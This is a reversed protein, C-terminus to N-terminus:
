SFCMTKKTAIQQAAEYFRLDYQNVSELYAKIKESMPETPKQQNVNNKPLVTNQFGYRKLQASQQDWESLIMVVDFHRLILLSMDLQIDSVKKDYHRRDTPDCPKLREGFYGHPIMGAFM